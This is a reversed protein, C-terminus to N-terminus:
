RTVTDGMSAACDIFMPVQLRRVEDLEIECRARVLAPQPRDNWGLTADVIFQADTWRLADRQGRALKGCLYTRRIVEHLDRCAQPIDRPWAIDRKVVDELESMGYAALTPDGYLRIDPATPLAPARPLPKEEGREDRLATMVAVGGAVLAALALAAVILRNKSSPKPPVTEGSFATALHAVLGRRGQEGMPYRGLDALVADASPYRQDRDKALLKLAVRALDKPGGPQPVSGFLVAALTARTYDAKFLSRNALLEWLIVGVAFLDSRQDLPRASAQEPSMYAPKGKLVVSASAESADRAKAIGFDSVKVAGEWSLLVNHPSVDRHVLRQAHAHGLGRLIEAVLFAAVAPPVPGASMLASLNVGQVLEMVLVLGGDADRSFDLTEVINPHRLRATLQAESSFQAVFAPNQAYGPLIRKIAVPRAFAETGVLEGAFVEAMGGLGLRAGVRYQL